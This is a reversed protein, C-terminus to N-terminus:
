LEVLMFLIPASSPTFFGDSGAVYLQYDSAATTIIFDYVLQPPYTVLDTFLSCNIGRWTQLSRDAKGMWAILRYNTSPKLVTFPVTGAV